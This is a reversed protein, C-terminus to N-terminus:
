EVKFCHAGYVTNYKSWNKYYKTNSGENPSLKLLEKYNNGENTMFYVDWTDTRCDGNKTEIVKGKINPTAGILSNLDFYYIGKNKPIMYFKIYYENNFYHYNFSYSNSAIKFNYISDVIWEFDDMFHYHKGKELLTDMKIIGGGMHFDVSDLIFIYNSDRDWKERPIFSSVTITDGIHILSDDPEFTVPIDFIYYSHNCGENIHDDPLIPCALMVFSFLVLLLLKKM